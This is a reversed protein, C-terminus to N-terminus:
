PDPLKPYSAERRVFRTAGSSTSESCDTFARTLASLEQAFAQQDQPNDFAIESELTLVPLKQGKEGAASSLVGVERIASAWREM